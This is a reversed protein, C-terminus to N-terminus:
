TDPRAVLHIEVVPAEDVLHELETQISFWGTAPATFITQQSALAELDLGQPSPDGPQGIM